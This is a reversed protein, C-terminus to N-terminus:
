TATLLGGKPIDADGTLDGLITAMDILVSRARLAEIYDSAVLDQAVLNGGTASGSTSQTLVRHAMRQRGRPLPWEMAMVADPPISVRYGDTGQAISVIEKEMSDGMRKIEPDAGGDRSLGFAIARQLSFRGMDDGFRDSRVIAPAMGRTARNAEQDDQMRQYAKAQANRIRERLDDFTGGAAIVERALLPGDVGDEALFRGGYATIEAVEEMAERRAAPDASRQQLQPAPAGGNNDDIYMGNQGGPAARGIGVSPDAGVPTFSVEYPTWATAEIGDATERIKDITYGVSTGRLAGAEILGRVERGKPTAALAVVARLKTGDTWAKEVTGAISSVKNEHDALAPAGDQLRSLDAGSMLLVEDGFWRRVPIESAFSLSVRGDESVSQRTITASRQQREGPKPGNM